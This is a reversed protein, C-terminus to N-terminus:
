LTDTSTPILAVVSAFSEAHEAAETALLEIAMLAKAPDGGDQAQAALSQISLFTASQLMIKKTIRIRGTDCFATINGPQVSSRNNLSLQM